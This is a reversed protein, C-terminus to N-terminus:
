QPSWLGFFYGKLKKDAGGWVGGGFFHFTLINRQNNPSRYRAALRALGWHTRLLVFGGRARRTRLVRDIGQKLIPERLPLYKM